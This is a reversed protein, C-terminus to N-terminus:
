QVFIPGCNVARAISIFQVGYETETWAGWQEYSGILQSTAGVDGAHRSIVIGKTLGSTAVQSATSNPGAETRMYMTCYHAVFLNMCFMWMEAYRQFMVSAGALFTYALIVVIPIFPSQYVTLTNGSATAVNSLTVTGAVVSVILTDQPFAPDVVLQGAALGATNTFGTVAASGLTSIVTSYQSAVGFFKPYFQLFNTVTFPPNGSFVLGAAGDFQWITLTQLDLGASGYLMGYFGVIDPFGM